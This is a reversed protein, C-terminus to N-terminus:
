AESINKVSELIITRITWGAPYGMGTVDNDLWEETDDTVNPDHPPTLFDNRASRIYTTIDAEYKDVYTTVANYAADIEEQTPNMPDVATTFVYANLVDVSLKDIQNQRRRIGENMQSVPDHVYVKHTVKKDPHAEGDERYWVRETWREVPQGLSTRVYGLAECNEDSCMRVKLVLTTETEDTYYDVVRVEGRYMTSIVKHLRATLGTKYDITRHDAESLTFQSIALPPFPQGDHNAVITDLATQEPATLDVDFNFSVTTTGAEVDESSGIFNLTAAISEDSAIQQELKEDNFIDNPFDTNLYDYHSM